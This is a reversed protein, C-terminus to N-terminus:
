RHIQDIGARESGLTSGGIQEMQVKAANPADEYDIGFEIEDYAPNYRIPIGAAQMQSLPVFSDAAASGDIASLESASFRDRLLDTVSRLGVAITGDLQQFDVSGVLVGNVRADLSTKAMLAEQALINAGLQNAADIGQAAMAAEQAAPAPSQPRQPSPHELPLASRLGSSVDLPGSFAAEVSEAAIENIRADATGASLESPVTRIQPPTARAFETLAEMPGASVKEAESTPAAQPLGISAEAPITASVPFSLEVPLANTVSALNLPKSGTDLFQLSLDSDIIGSGEASGRGPATAGVRDGFPMAPAFSADKTLNASAAVADTVVANSLDFRFSDTPLPEMTGFALTPGTVAAALAATGGFIRTKLSTRSTVSFRLETEFVAAQCSTQVM